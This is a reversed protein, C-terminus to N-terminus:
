PTNTLTYDIVVWEFNKLDHTISEDIDEVVIQDHILKQYSITQSPINIIRQLIQESYKHFPETLDSSEYQETITQFDDLKLLYHNRINLPNAPTASLFYEDAVHQHIDDNLSQLVAEKIEEVQVDYWGQEILDQEEFDEFFEEMSQIFFSTCFFITTLIINKNM